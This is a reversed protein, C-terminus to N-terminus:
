RRCLRRVGSPRSSSNTLLGEASERFLEKLCLVCRPVFGFRKRRATFATVAGSVLDTMHLLGIVHREEDLVPLVTIPKPKHSEMIHLAQAALKEQTIFKPEKTMLETVPRKLFDVGKSLGRRIDGDTLLGQDDGTCAALPLVNRCGIFFVVRGPSLSVQGPSLPFPVYDYHVMGDGGPEVPHSRRRYPWLNKEATEEPLPELFAHGQCDIAGRGTIAIDECNEAYIMCRKNFRPAYETRWFDSELNPFDAPDTSGLLVADREIRLEVGSRLAITGTLFRGEALIVQGGGHAGCDDIAKQIASTDKTVGDGAAGYDKAYCNLM